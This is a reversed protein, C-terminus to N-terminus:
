NQNYEFIKLFDIKNQAPSDAATNNLSEV